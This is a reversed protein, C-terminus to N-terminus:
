YSCCVYCSKSTLETPLVIIILTIITIRNVQDPSMNMKDLTYVKKVNYWKEFTVIDHQILPPFQSFVGIFPMKLCARSEKKQM